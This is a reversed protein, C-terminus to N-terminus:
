RAPTFLEAVRESHAKAQAQFREVAEFVLKQEDANLGEAKRYSAEFTQGFQERLALSQDMSQQYIGTVFGAYVKAYNQYLDLNTQTLNQLANLYSVSNQGYANVADVVNNAAVKAGESAQAAMDAFAEAAIHGNGNKAKTAAAM